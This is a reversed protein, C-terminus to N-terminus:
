SLWRGGHMGRQASATNPAFAAVGLSAAAILATTTKRVM